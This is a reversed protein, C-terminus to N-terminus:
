LSYLSPYFSKNCYNSLFIDRRIQWAPHPPCPRQMDWVLGFEGLIIFAFTNDDLFLFASYKANIKIVFTQSNGLKVYLRLFGFWNSFTLTNMKGKDSEPSIKMLGLLGSHMIKWWSDAMEKRQSKEERASAPPKKHVKSTSDCLILRISLIQM